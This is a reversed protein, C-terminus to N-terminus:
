RNNSSNMFSKVINDVEELFMDHSETNSSDFSVGVGSVDKKKEEKFNKKLDDDKVNIKLEEKDEKEEKNKKVDEESRKEEEENMKDEEDASKREEVADLLIDFNDNRDDKFKKDSKNESVVEDNKQDEEDKYVNSFKQELIRDLKRELNSFKEDIKGELVSFKGEIYIRLSTIKANFRKELDNIKKELIGDRDGVVHDTSSPEKESISKVKKPTQIIPSMFDDGSDVKEDHFASVNSKGIKPKGFFGNLDLIEEEAAILIINSM